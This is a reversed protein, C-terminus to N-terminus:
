YEKFTRQIEGPDDTVTLALMLLIRAKHVNLNGTGVVGREINTRGPLRLALDDRGDVLHAEVRRSRLCRYGGRARPHM